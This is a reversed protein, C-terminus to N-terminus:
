WSGSTGRSGPSRSSRRARGLGHVRGAAPDAGVPAPDDRVRHGDGADRRRLRRRRVAVAPLAPRDRRHLRDRSARPTRRPSARGSSACGSGPSVWSASPPRARPGRVPGDLARVGGLERGAPLRRARARLNWPISGLVTFLIFPGLHMRGVGAGFSVLSRVVPCWAGSSRPGPAGASSSGSRATWTAGRHLSPVPGLPRAAPARGLVRDRLRRARRPALRDDGRRGPAPHEM